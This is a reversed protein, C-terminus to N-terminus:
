AIRAWPSGVPLSQQKCPLAFCPQPEDALEASVGHLDDGVNVFIHIGPSSLQDELSCQLDDPGM